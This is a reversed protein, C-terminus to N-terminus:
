VEIRLYLRWVSRFSLVSVCTLWVYTESLHTLVLLIMLKCMRYELVIPEPTEGSLEPCRAPVGGAGCPEGCAAQAVQARAPWRVRADTPHPPFGPGRSCVWVSMPFGCVGCLRPRPRSNIGRGGRRMLIMVFHHQTFGHQQLVQQMGKQNRDEVWLHLAKERKIFSKACRTAMVQAIQPAAAFSACM